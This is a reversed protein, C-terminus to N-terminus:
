HHAACFADRADTSEVIPKYRTAAVIAAAEAAASQEIEAAVVQQQAPTKAKVLLEANHWAAERWAALLQFFGTDDLKTGQLNGDDITPDFRRAIEAYLPTVVRNLFVDVKDHDPKRSSGDPKVLGINALAFPLDRNVHAN